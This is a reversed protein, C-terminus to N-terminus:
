ALSPVAHGVGRWQVCSKAATVLNSRVTRPGLYGSQVHFASAAISVHNGIVKVIIVIVTETATEILVQDWFFM